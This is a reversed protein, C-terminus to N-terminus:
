LTPWSKPQTPLPQDQLIRWRVALIGFSNKIICRARSLRYNFIPEPELLHKGPYPQLMNRKLPFGEYGVIVFPLSQETTGPVPRDSPLSLTGNKLAHGFNLTPCCEVTVTVVMIVLTFHYYADCVVLLVISHTGKYNFFSSGVNIPAQM